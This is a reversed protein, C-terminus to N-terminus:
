KAEAAARRKALKEASKPSILGRAELKAQVAALSDTQKKVHTGVRKMMATDNQHEEARQMTRLADEAEWDKDPKPSAAMEGAQKTKAMPKGKFKIAVNNPSTTTTAM